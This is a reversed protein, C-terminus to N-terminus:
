LTHTVVKVAVPQAQTAWMESDWNTLVGGGGNGMCVRERVCVRRVTCHGLVKNFGM